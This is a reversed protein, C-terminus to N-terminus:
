TQTLEFTLVLIENEPYSQIHKMIQAVYTTKFCRAELNMSIKMYFFIFKFSLYQSASLSILKCM